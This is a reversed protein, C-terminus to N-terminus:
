SRIELLSILFNGPNVGPDIRLRGTRAVEDLPFVIRNEGKVTTGTITNAESYNPNESSTYYLTFTSEQESELTVHLRAGEPSDLTM